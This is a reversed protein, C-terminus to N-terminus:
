NEEQAMEPRSVKNAGVDIQAAQKIKNWLDKISERSDILSDAMYDYDLRHLKNVQADVNLLAKGEATIVKTHQVRLHTRYDYSDTSNNM